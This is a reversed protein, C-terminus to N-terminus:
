LGPYRLLTSVPALSGPPSGPGPTRLPQPVGRQRGEREGGKGRGTPSPHLVPDLELHGPDGLLRARAPQHDVGAVWRGGPLLPRVQEEERVNDLVILVRRRATV